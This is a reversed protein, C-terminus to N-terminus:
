EDCLGRLWNNACRRGLNEAKIVDTCENSIRSWVGLYGSVIDSRKDYSIQPLCELFYSVDDKLLNIGKEEAKKKLNDIFSNPRYYAM